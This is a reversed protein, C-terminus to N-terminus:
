DKLYVKQEEGNITALLPVIVGDIMVSMEGGFTKPIGDETIRYASLREQPTGAGINLIDTSNTVPYAGMVSQDKGPAQGGQGLCVSGTGKEAENGTGNNIVTSTKLPDQQETESRREGNVGGGMGVPDKPDNPFDGTTLDPLAFNGWTLDIDVKPNSAETNHFKLLTVRTPNDNAPNFDHITDVIWYGQIDEPSNIYVPDRFDFEQYDTHSLNFWASLQISDEIISLTRAYYTAVLGDAQAFSLSIGVDNGLTDEQLASPITTDRASDNEWNWTLSTSNFSQTGFSFNLIRPNFGYSPAPAGDGVNAQDWLRSTVAGTTSFAQFPYSPSITKTEVQQVGKKFRDPFVHKYSCWEKNDFEWMRNRQKLFEDNPDEVYSFLLEKNYDSIFNLKYDRNIDIKDSWDIASAIGNFFGDREEVYVTKNRVDTLWYLNFITTLDKFLDLVNTNPLIDSINFTADRRLQRSMDTLKFFSTNKIVTRAGVVGGALVRVDITDGVDLLYYGTQIITPNNNKMNGSTDGFLIGTSVGNKFLKVQIFATGTGISVTLSMDFRYKGRVPATFQKTSTDYNGSTDFNDGTSDNDFNLLADTTISILEQDTTIGARFLQDNVFTQTRQFKDGIYPFILQKWEDTDMFSSSLAFGVSNLAREVIARYRIAPRMDEVSVQDQIERTGYSIWPYVHDFGDDYKSAWTAEISNKNYNQFNNNFTLDPLEVDNLDALWKSNNGFFEFVYHKSDRRTEVNKAKIYGREIIVGNVLVNATKKGKMDKIVRQNSSYLHELLQNNDRTAPIKFTKSFVGGTKALINLTALKKTLTFPFNEDAGIDLVGEVSNTSDRIEIQTNLM